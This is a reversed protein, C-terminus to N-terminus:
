FASKEDAKLTVQLLERSMFIVEFTSSWQDEIVNVFKYQIERNPIYAEKKQVDYGSYILTSEWCFCARSRVEELFM